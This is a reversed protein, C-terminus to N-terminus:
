KLLYDSGKLIAPETMSMKPFGQQRLAEYIMIAAVNSVNLARVADTMPLRICRDLHKKLLDIPIGTSEKGLVFYYNQNLDAVHVDYMTKLGYRTLYFFEGDKNEELFAEFNKYM